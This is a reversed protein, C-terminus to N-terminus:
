EATPSANNEVWGAYLTMSQMVTDTEMHWPETCAKDRYWGVFSFGEKVPTAPAQLVEAHYATVSSVQSGGDTDFNVTFGNHKIVFACVAVFTILLVAEIVTAARVSMKVKGYLGGSRTPKANSLNEKETDPRQTQNM